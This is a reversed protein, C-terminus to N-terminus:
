RCFFSSSRWSASCALCSFARLWFRSALRRLCFDLVAPRLDQFDGVQGLGAEIVYRGLGLASGLRGLPGLRTCARVQGFRSSGQAAERRDLRCWELAHGWAQYCRGLGGMVLPSPAGDGASGPPWDCRCDDAFAPKASRALSVHQMPYRSVQFLEYGKRLM